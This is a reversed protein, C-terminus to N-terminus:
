DRVVCRLLLCALARTLTNVTKARFVLIIEGRQPSSAEGEQIKVRGTPLPYDAGEIPSSIM